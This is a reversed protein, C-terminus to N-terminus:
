ENVLDYFDKKVFYYRGNEMNIEYADGHKFSLIRGVYTITGDEKKIRSFSLAAGQFNTSRIVVSQLTNDPTSAVSTITGEFRIGDAVSVSINQGINGDLLNAFAEVNCIIKEPFSQFLKPRNMEPERVPPNQANANICMFFVSLCLFGKVLNKM